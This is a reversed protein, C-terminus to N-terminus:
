QDLREIEAGAEALAAAVLLAQQANMEGDDQEGPFVRVTREVRGDSHQVGDIHVGIEGVHRRTGAIYRVFSGDDDWQLWGTVNTADAPIPVDAYRINAVNREAYERAMNLLSRRRKEAFDALTTPDIGDARPPLEPHREWYDLEAAQEDTLEGRLEHWATANDTNKM